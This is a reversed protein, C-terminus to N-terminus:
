IFKRILDKALDFWFCQCFVHIDLGFNVSMCGEGKSLFVAKMYHVSQHCFNAFLTPRPIKNRMPHGCKGQNIKDLAIYKTCLVRGRCFLFVVKCFNWKMPLLTNYMSKTTVHFDSILQRQLPSIWDAGGGWGRCLAGFGAVAFHGLNQVLHGRFGPLICGNASFHGM